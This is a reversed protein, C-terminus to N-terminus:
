VLHFCKFTADYTIIQKSHRFTETNTANTLWTCNKNSTVTTPLNGCGDCIILDYKTEGACCKLREGYKNKLLSYIHTDHGDLNIHTVIIKPHYSLLWVLDYGDNICSVLLINKICMNLLPFVNRRMSDSGGFHGLLWTSEVYLQYVHYYYDNVNGLIQPLKDNKSQYCIPLCFLTRRMHIQSLLQAVYCGFKKSNCIKLQSSHYNLFMQGDYDNLDRKNSLSTSVLRFLNHIAGCNKMGLVSSMFVTHDNVELPKLFRGWKVQQAESDVDKIAYLQDNTICNFLRNIENTVLIGRFSIYILKEYNSM